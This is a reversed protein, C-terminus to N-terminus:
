NSYSWVLHKGVKLAAEALAVADSPAEAISPVLGPTQNFAQRMLGKEKGEEVNANWM